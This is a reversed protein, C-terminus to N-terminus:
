VHEKVAIYYPNESVAKDDLEASRKQVIEIKQNIEQISERFIQISQEKESIALSVGEAYLENDKYEKELEIDDKLSELIELEEALRESLEEQLNFLDNKGDFQKERIKLSEIKKISM